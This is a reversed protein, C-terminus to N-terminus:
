SEVKEFHHWSLKVKSVRMIILAIERLGSWFFSYLIILFLFLFQAILCFIAFIGLSININTKKKAKQTVHTTHM